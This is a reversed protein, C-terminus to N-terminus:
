ELMESLFFFSDVNAAAAARGFWVFRQPYSKRLTEGIVVMADV